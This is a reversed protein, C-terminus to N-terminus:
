AHNLSMANVKSRNNLLAWLENNQFRVPYYICFVYELDEKAVNIMSVSTASVPAVKKAWHM